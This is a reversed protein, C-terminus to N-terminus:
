RVTLMMLNSVEGGAMVQFPYSEGPLWDQPVEFPVGLIGNENITGLDFGKLPPLLYVKGHLPPDQVGSGMYLTVPATGPNGTVRVSITSGPTVEGLFYLHLSFEDAGMDVMLPARRADGEFDVLLDPNSPDFCRASDKCPSHFSLHFDNRGPDVFLPNNSNMGGKNYIEVGSTAYISALGGMLTSNRIRLISNKDLYLESGQAANNGWLISNAVDYFGAWAFIGGGSNATNFVITNNSLATHRSERFALGGGADATNSHIMNNVIICEPDPYSIHHVKLGGGYEGASNFSITNNRIKTDDAHVGGGDWRAVNGTIENNELTSDSLYVGGGYESWNTVIINNRVVCDSGWVGGGQESVGNRLLFGELVAGTGDVKAVRGIRGGDIVTIEAGSRSKVTISKSQFDINEAYRGPSVLVVDGDLTFDIASQITGFDGPVTFMVGGGSHEDIGMDVAMYINRPDGDIDFEPLNPAGSDGSNLCPSSATIHFDGALPDAFLPNSDINGTGPWGGKVDCHTVVPNGGEIESGVPADNNWFVTNTVIPAANSCSCGGGSVVARNGLVVCCTVIPSSNMFHLGGGDGGARNSDVVTNVMVAPYDLCFIGGGHSGAHNGSFVSDQSMVETGDAYVGGGNGTAANGCLDERNLTLEGGQCFLAGGNMSASNGSLVDDDGIVRSNLACVGGGSGTARNNSIIMSNMALDADECYIGGGSGSSENRDITLGTLSLIGGLCCLGGGSISARNKLIKIDVLSPSAFTCNIGGGFDALGNVITFGALCSSGSEGNKFSVASGSQNGDIVTVDSGSISSVSIAKGLFDINEVYRGPYVFILDGDAASDMAGQISPFSGPVIHTVGGNYHYGMDVIGSDDVNDTRTSGVAQASGPDGSDVCPNVIGPQCPDQMLHYDGTGPDYFLPDSDINGMGSYGGEIDCYTVNACYDVQQKSDNDWIICNSISGTGFGCGHIGAGFSADNGVITCFKIEVHDNSRGCIGGGSPAFSWSMSSTDNNTIINNHIVVKTCSSAYIGGGDATAGAFNQDIINDIIHVTSAGCYIGGGYSVVDAGGDVSNCSITNGVILLNSDWAYIGGGCNSHYSWDNSWAVNRTIMNDMITASSNICAIGAGNSKTKNETIINNRILPSSDLCYIGSGSAGGTRGNTVTFGEIVSDPGEGRKFNVVRGNQNGDITTVYPGVESRLTIAKGLFYINEYYTGPRVIITDGHRAADIAGQITGYQDPVYITAGQALGLSLLFIITLFPNFKRFM